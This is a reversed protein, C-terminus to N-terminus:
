TVRQLRKFLLVVLVLSLLQVVFHHLVFEPAHSVEYPLDPVLQALLTILLDSEFLKLLVQELHFLHVLFTTFITGM